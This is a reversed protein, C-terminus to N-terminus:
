AGVITEVIGIDKTGVGALDTHIEATTLLVLYPPKSGHTNEERDDEDLV